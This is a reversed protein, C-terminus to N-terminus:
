GGSLTFNVTITTDVEVPEGNLIYPRYRWQKVAELASQNLLPSATSVVRLNQIVGDKGILASLVVAGQVRAIKAMQPYSPEVKRVLLGQTVGSSVRVRTPAAVKPVTVPTSSIIGGIVGGMQGGPVGGPVGGMVGSMQPPPTDEEKIMQVKQPIKTPTRLQNNVMDTEVQKVIKIAAPPPPPPPPPPPAALFTMTMGKPLAETFMLPILILIGVIVAELIFSVFTMRGRKTKLRGGSEILSDEFM